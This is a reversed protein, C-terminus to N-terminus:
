FLTVEEVVGEGNENPGDGAGATDLVAVEDEGNPPANEAAGKDEGNPPAEDVGAAVVAECCGECGVLAPELEEAAAAAAGTLNLKKPPAFLVDEGKPFELELVSFVVAGVVDAVGEDNLPASFGRGAEEAFVALGIEEGKPEASLFGSSSFDVVDAGVNLKPVGAEEDAPAVFPPLIKPAAFAANVDFEVEEVFGEGKPLLKPPFEAKLLPVKPDFIM